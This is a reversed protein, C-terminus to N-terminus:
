CHDYYENFIAAIRLRGILALKLWTMIKTLCRCSKSCLETVTYDMVTMCNKKIKDLSTSDRFAM